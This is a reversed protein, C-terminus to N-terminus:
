NKSNGQAAKAKGIAEMIERVFPLPIDKITSCLAGDKHVTAIRDLFATLEDFGATLDKLAQIREARRSQRAKAKREAVEPTDLPDPKTDADDGGVDDVLDLLLQFRVHVMSDGWTMNDIDVEVQYRPVHKGSCNEIIAESM